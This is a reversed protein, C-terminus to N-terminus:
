IWFFSVERLLFQIAQVHLQRTKVDISAAECMTDVQQKLM